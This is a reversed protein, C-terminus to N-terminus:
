AGSAPQCPGSAPWPARRFRAGTGKPGAPAPEAAPLEQLWVLSYGSPLEFNAAAECLGRAQGLTVGSAPNATVEVMPEFDLRDIVRPATMDRVTVFSGLPVMKGKDSRVQLRKIDAARKRGGGDDQVTVQWTRGFRNFSNVYASGMYVQLTNSIDNLSM